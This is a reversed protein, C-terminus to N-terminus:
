AGQYRRLSARVRKAQECHEGFDKPELSSDPDVNKRADSLYSLVQQSRRHAPLQTVAIECALLDWRDHPLESAIPPHGGYAARIIANSSIGVARHENPVETSWGGAHDARSALFTVDELLQQKTFNGSMLSIPDAKAQEPTALVIGAAGMWASGATVAKVFERRSKNTM